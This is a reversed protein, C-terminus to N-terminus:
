GAPPARFNKLPSFRDSYARALGASFYPIDAAARINAENCALPTKGDADYVGDWGAVIAALLDPDGKLALERWRKSGIVRFHAVIEAEVTKEGEPIEIVCRTPFTDDPRPLKFM